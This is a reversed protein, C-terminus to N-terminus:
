CRCANGFRAGSIRRRPIAAFGRGPGRSHSSSAGNEASATEPGAHAPPRPPASSSRPGRGLCEDAASQGAEWEGCTARSIRCTPEIAPWLCRGSRRPQVRASASTPRRALDRPQPRGKGGRTTRSRTADLGATAAAASVLGGAGPVRGAGAQTLRPRNPAGFVTGPEFTLRYASLHDFRPRAPTAGARAAHSPLSPAALIRPRFDVQPATALKATAFAAAARAAPQPRPSPIPSPRCEWRCDPESGARLLEAQGANM